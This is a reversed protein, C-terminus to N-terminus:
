RMPSRRCPINKRWVGPTTGTKAMFVRTFHSQDAFGAQRAIAALPQDSERMLQMALETRLLMLWQHPTSGTSQRFAHVFASPSLGCAQALAALAIGEVVSARMVEKARREQWPALGCRRPTRPRLGDAYHILLHSRMALLVHDVFLANTQQEAHLPPLLARGLQEIVPDMAQMGPQHRLNGSTTGLEDCLETLAARPIYFLLAHFPDLMHAVPNRALDFFNTGGALVPQNAVSRGDLWLELKRLGHLELSLLFADEAVVPDTFGFGPVEYRMETVALRWPQGSSSVLTPPQRLRFTEGLRDGYAGRKM